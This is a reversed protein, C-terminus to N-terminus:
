DGNAKEGTNIHAYQKSWPKRFLDGEFLIKAYNVTPSKPLAM